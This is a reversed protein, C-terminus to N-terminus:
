SPYSKKLIEFHKNHYRRIIRRSQMDKIDPGSFMHNALAKYTLYQKTGPEIKIMSGDSFYLEVPRQKKKARKRRWYIIFTIFFVIVIILSFLLFYKFILIDQM